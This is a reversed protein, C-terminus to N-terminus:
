RDPARGQIGIVSYQVIRRATLSLLILIGCLFAGIRPDRHSHQPHM